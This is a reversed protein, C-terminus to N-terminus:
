ERRVWETCKSDTLTRVTGSGDLFVTGKVMTPQTGTSSYKMCLVQNGAWRNGFKCGGCGESKECGCSM